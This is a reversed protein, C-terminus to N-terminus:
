TDVADVYRVAFFENFFNQESIKKVNSNFPILNIAIIAVLIVGYIWYYNFKGSENDEPKKSNKQENSM